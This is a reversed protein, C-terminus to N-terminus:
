FFKFLLDSGAFQKKNLISEQCFFLMFTPFICIGFCIIVVQKLADPFHEKATSAELM